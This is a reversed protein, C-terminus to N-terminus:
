IDVELDLRLVESSELDLRLVPLLLLLFEVELLLLRMHGNRALWFFLPLAVWGFGVGLLAPGGTSVGRLPVPQPPPLLRRLLLRLRTEEEEEEEETGEEAREL